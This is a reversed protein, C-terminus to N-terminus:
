WMTEAGSPDLLPRGAARRSALTGSILENELPASRIARPSRWLNVTLRELELGINALGHDSPAAMSPAGFLAQSSSDPQNM